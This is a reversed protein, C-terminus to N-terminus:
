EDNLVYNVLRDHNILFAKSYLDGPYTTRLHYDEITMPMEVEVKNHSFDQVSEVGSFDLMPEIRFILSSHKLKFFLPDTQLGGVLDTTAGVSVLQDSHLCFNSFNGASSYIFSDQLVYIKGKHRISKESPLLTFEKFSETWYIQNDLLSIREAKVAKGNNYHSLVKPNHKYKLDIHLSIKDSILHSLVSRWCVDTGGSNGRIDVIVKEFDGHAENLSDIKKIISQGQKKDMFPMGIYLTKSHKFYIAQEKKQSGYYVERLPKVKLSVTDKLSFGITRISSKDEITLSFDDDGYHYFWKNYQQNLSNNIYVPWVRSYDQSIFDEIKGDNYAIIKAGKKIRLDKYTFDAYVKYHNNEYIIPILLSGLTEGCKDELDKIHEFSQDDKFNFKKQYKGWKKLYSYPMFSCHMDQVLRLSKNIISKFECITTEETIQNRLNLYENDYDIGLRVANLDKHVAFANIYEITEDFDELMQRKTLLLEQCIGNLSSLLLLILLYLKSNKM